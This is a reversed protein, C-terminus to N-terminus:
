CSCHMDRGVTCFTDLPFHSPIRYFVDPVEGRGQGCCLFMRMAQPHLQGFVSCSPFSAPFVLHLQLVRYGSVALAGIWSSKTVPVYGM